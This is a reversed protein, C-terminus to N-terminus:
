MNAVTYSFEMMELDLNSFDIRGKQWPSQPGFEPYWAQIVLAKVWLAGYVKYGEKWTCSNEKHTESLFTWFTGTATSLSPHPYSHFFGQTTNLPRVAKPQSHKWKLPWLCKWVRFGRRRPLAPVFELQLHCHHSPLPGNGGVRCGPRSKDVAPATGVM